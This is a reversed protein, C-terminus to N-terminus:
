SAAVAGAEPGYREARMADARAKVELVLRGQAVIAAYEAAFAGFHFAVTLAAVGLHWTPAIRGTDAGAGMWATLGILTMSWLIFRFARSKNKKSQAVVWDPMAYAQVVEKVWRNTGLFYTYVISHVGLTAMTTFLGLLFHTGHWPAGPVREEVSAGLGLAFSVLLLTVNTVALGLFTRNM